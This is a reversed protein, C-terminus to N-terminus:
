RERKLRPRILQLPSPHLSFSVTSGFPVPYRRHSGDLFVSAEEVRNEITLEDDSSMVASRLRVADGPPAYPERVQFAFAEADLHLIPGGASALASTSGAPTSVWVGSSRQLEEGGPWSLLYRTMVAPNDACFLVDNLVPGQVPRKGLRVQLRAVSTPELEGSELSDLLEPLADATSACLHGVSHEPASNIGLVAIPSRVAHSVGLVTGDGGLTVILDYDKLPRDPMKRTVTLSAVRSKLFTIVQAANTHHAEHAPEIKSVSPHGRRLLSLLRDKGPRDGDESLWDLATEKTVVLVHRLKM